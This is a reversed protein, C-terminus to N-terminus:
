MERMPGPVFILIFIIIVLVGIWWRRRDLRTVDDLAPPHQVGILFLILCLWLFWGSFAVNSLAPLFQQVFPLSALAFFGLARAAM